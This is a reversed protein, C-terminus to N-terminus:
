RRCGTSISPTWTSPRGRDRRADRQDLTRRRLHRDEAVVQRPDLGQRRFEDLIALMYSPTVTIIDPRFDNILQVQRETMGGSVPVVTCGLAGRRLARWPRRHVLRLWLRQPHDHRQPRGRRLDLAGDGAVLDRYRGQTYGVVIPKGTTGSSAHIRVLKERAGRVHRVSLQRASGAEGHVPIQRSGSLRKFDSPHVGAEDFAKKYHAVNDYAHALTWALRRTQLAMIEDRSAREAEDMEPIYGSSGPQPKTSAM